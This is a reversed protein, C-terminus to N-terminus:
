YRSSWSTSSLLRELFGGEGSYHGLRAHLKFVHTGLASIPASIPRSRYDIMTMKSSRM